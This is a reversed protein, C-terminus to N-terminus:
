ATLHNYLSTKQEFKKTQRDIISKTRERMTQYEQASFFLQGSVISEACLRGKQFVHSIAFGFVEKEGAGGGLHCFSRILIPYNKDVYSYFSIDFSSLALSGGRPLGTQHAAAISAQRLGEMLLMGQVHDSEHDFQLEETTEFMNYWFFNGEKQPLSILVNENRNKHILERPARPPLTDQSFLALQLSSLSEFDPQLTRLTNSVSHSFAALNEKKLAPIAYLEDLKLFQSLLQGSSKGLVEWKNGLILKYNRLSELDEAHITHPEKISIAAANKIKLLIDNKAPAQSSQPANPLEFSNILTRMPKPLVKKTPRFKKLGTKEQLLHSRTAQTSTIMQEM